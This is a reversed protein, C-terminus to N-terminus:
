SDLVNINDKSSSLSSSLDHKIPHVTSRLDDGVLVTDNVAAMKEKEVRVLTYSLDRIVSEFPTHSFHDYPISPRYVWVQTKLILLMAVISLKTKVNMKIAWSSSAKCGVKAKVAKFLAATLIIQLCWVTGIPVFGEQKSAEKAMLKSNEWQQMFDYMLHWPFAEKFSLLSQIEVSSILFNLTCLVGGAVQWVVMRATNKQIGTLTCSLIFYAAVIFFIDSLFISPVWLYRKMSTLNLLGGNSNAIKHTLLSIVLSAMFFILTNNKTKNKKVHVTAAGCLILLEEEQTKKDDAKNIAEVVKCAAGEIDGRPPDDVHKFLM